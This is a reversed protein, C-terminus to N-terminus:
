VPQHGVKLLTKGVHWFPSLQVLCALTKFIEGYSKLYSMSLTDNHLRMQGSLDRPVQRLDCHELLWQRSLNLKIFDKINKNSLAPEPQSLTPVKNVMASKPKIKSSQEEIGEVHMIRKVSPNSTLALASLADALSNEGRLIQTLEFSNFQEALEHVLKLYAKM